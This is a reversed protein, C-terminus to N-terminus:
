HKFVQELERIPTRNALRDLKSMRDLILVGDLHDTEHQWVRAALDDNQMQFPTGDLDLASISVAKPRRIKATIHPLSLCGEEEDSWERSIPTIVPNIFILDNDPQGTPNTVFLRWKLGVQPAALGVGPAEHMIELMRQAVRQVEDTIPDIPHAGACLVPNPYFVLRLQDPSYNM